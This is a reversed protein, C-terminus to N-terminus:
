GQYISQSLGAISSVIQFLMQAILFFAMPMGISFLLSITIEISGLNKANQIITKINPKTSSLTVTAFYKQRCVECVPVELSAAQYMKKAIWDRICDEHVYRM